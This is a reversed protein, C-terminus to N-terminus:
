WNGSSNGKCVNIGFNNAVGNVSLVKLTAGSASNNSSNNLIATTNITVSGSPMIFSINCSTSFNITGTTNYHPTSSSCATGSSLSINAGSGNASGNWQLQGSFTLELVVQDGTNGVMTYTGTGLGPTCVGQQFPQYPLPATCGLVNDGLVFWQQTNYTDSNPNIDTLKVETQGTNAGNQTQCRMPANEAGEWIPQTTTNCGGYLDAMKQGNNFFDENAQNDADQQSETSTYKGAPVTYTYAVPAKGATCKDSYFTGSKATNKFIQICAANTNAYQQAQADVALQAKLDADLQSIASTYAGAALPFDIYDGVYGAACNSRQTTQYVAHSYYLAPCQEFQQKENYEYMKVISGQEDKINKLRGRSDYEYITFRNSADCESTKGLVPDYTNTNIRADKPKLRLEDVNGTTGSITVSTAGPTVAYEYWTYGKRVPGSSLLTANTVTLPVTAWFSLTYPRAYPNVINATINGGSIGYYRAGTISTGATTAGAYSFGFTNGTEFSNYAVTENVPDKLNIITAVKIQNDYDYLYKVTRGGEDTEAIALGTVADYFQETTKVEPVTTIISVPVTARRIFTKKPEVSGSATETFETREKSVSLYDNQGKGPNKVQIETEVPITFVGYNTLKNLANQANAPLGTTSYYKNYTITKRTSIGSNSIEEIQEPLLGDGSLNPYYNGYDYNTTKSVFNAENQQDYTNEVTSALQVKGSYVDYISYELVEPIPATCYALPAQKFTAWDDSTAPLMKRPRINCSFANVPVRTIDCNGPMLMAVPTATSDVDARPQSTDAAVDPNKNVSSDNYSTFPSGAPRPAAPICTLRYTNIIEKIKKGAANLVLTRKPLGYLWIGYRQQMNFLPNNSVWLEFGADDKSTFETITKGNTGNNEIVEVRKYMLPLPNSAVLDRNYWTNMFNVKLDDQAFCTFVAEFIAMIADIILGIWAGIISTKTAASAYNVITIINQVTSIVGLIESATQVASSSMFKQFGGVSVAQDTYLIGPYQYRYECKVGLFLKWPKFTVYRGFPKYDSSSRFFNVPREAGWLSSSNDSESVRYNYQLEIGKTGACNNSYGGDYTITKAVHVGGIAQEQTESLFTARNQEYVYELRGGTPYQVSKLLGNAARNPKVSTLGEDKFSLRKIAPFDPFENDTRGRTGNVCYSKYSASISSPNDARAQGFLSIYGDYYGWIDKSVFFPPPVFDANDGGGLVYDFVYPKEEDKLLATQRTVSILYLRSALKQEDTVPTGYRTYIVYSQKLLHKQVFTGNYSVSISQLQRSGPLDFRASNGYGFSILYSNPCTIFDVAPILVKAKRAIVKGYTKNGEVTNYDFGTYQELYRYKYSFVIKRNGDTIFKDRISTLHWENVIFPNPSGDDFFTEHYVKRENYKKPPDTKNILRRDCPACRQVKTYALTEFRYEIGNGDVVTFSTIVTRAIGTITGSNITAKSFSQTTANTVTEFTVKMPTNGLFVGENTGKKLVFTASIGNVNLMFYDLERDANLINHQRYLQDKDPFVPYKNYNAPAGNQPDQGTYLYGAPYKNIETHSENNGGEGGLAKQDDPEGVQLRVIKGGAMLGWGQGVDSAVEDVKLGYGSNYGLSIPLNLNSINDQFNFIPLDVVSSGTQKNVQALADNVPCFCILLFFSCANAKKILAKLLQNSFTM